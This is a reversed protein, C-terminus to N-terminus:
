IEIAEAFTDTKGDARLTYQMTYQTVYRKGSGNDTAISITVNAKSGVVSFYSPTKYPLVISCTTGAAASTAVSSHQAFYNNYLPDSFSLSAECTIAQGSPIASKKTITLNVTLVGDAASAAYAPAAIQLALASATLLSFATKRFNISMPVGKLRLNSWGEFAAVLARPNCNVVKALDTAHRGGGM